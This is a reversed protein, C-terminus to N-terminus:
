KFSPVELVADNKLMHYFELDLLIQARLRILSLSELSISIEKVLKYASRLLEYFEHTQSGEVDFTRIQMDM